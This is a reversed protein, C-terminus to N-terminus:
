KPQQIQKLAEGAIQSVGNDPDTLSKKLAPIADRALPGFSGLAAAAAQRSEVTKDDLM